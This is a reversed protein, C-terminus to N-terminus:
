KTSEVDAYAVICDFELEDRVKRRLDPHAHIYFKNAVTKQAEAEYFYKERQKVVKKLAVFAFGSMTIIGLNFAM